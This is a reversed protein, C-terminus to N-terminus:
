ARRPFPRNRILEVALYGAGATRFQRWMWGALSPLTYVGKRPRRLVSPFVALIGGDPRSHAPLQTEGRLWNLYSTGFNAGMESCAVLSGFARPNVDHLWFKGTNDRILNLNFLGLMGTADVVAQGIADVEPLDLGEVSDAPAMPNARSLIAYTSAATIGAETALAGYSIADGAVYTEYFRDQESATALLQELEPLTEAIHVGTGGYGVREKLVIPLGLTAVAHAPTADAALLTPPVLIHETALTSSIAVKDTITLRTAWRHTRHPTQLGAAFGYIVSALTETAQIDIFVYTEALATLEERASAGLDPTTFITHDFFIGFAASSRRPASTTVRITVFGAKRVEAALQFFCDWDDDDAFLVAEPRGDTLHKSHNRV